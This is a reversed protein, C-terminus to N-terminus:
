PKPIGSIGRLILADLASHGRDLARLLDGPMAAYGLGTIFGMFARGALYAPLLPEADYATRAMKGAANLTLRPHQAM